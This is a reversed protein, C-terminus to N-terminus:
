PHSLMPELATVLLSVVRPMAAAVADTMADGFHVVDEAEVAWIAIDEPLDFGMRKGAEFACALTTDHMSSSHLTAPVNRLSLRYVTGAPANGTCIADILFVRDYGIMEEMLRLGGVSLEKIDIGEHERVHKRLERAVAIGIGDDRLIPNGLGIILTKKIM